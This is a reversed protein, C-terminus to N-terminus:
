IEGEEWEDEGSGTVSETDGTVGRSVATVSETVGCVREPVLHSPSQGNKSFLERYSKQEGRYEGSHTENNQNEIPIIYENFDTVNTVAVTQPTIDVTVGTDCDTVGEGRGFRMELPSLVDEVECSFKIRVGYFGGGKRDREHRVGPLRLQYTFLDKLAQVFTNVACQKRGTENAWQCFNPYLHIHTDLIERTDEDVRKRGIMAREASEPTCVLNDHAWEAFPNTNILTQMSVGNLSGVHRDTDRLYATVEDYPMTLAWTVVGPLYPEFESDLDRRKETSVVNEFRVTIRRRQLGSTYDSSCIDQNAAILVMGTFRFHEGAQRHKEEFALSDGGTMAKLVSVDGAYKEADTIIALRKGFLKATEFRNGELRKLETVHVNEKGMIAEALRIFTGKGSGGPGILELYRQLDARGTLIANLYARLLQVQGADKVSEMLWSQVPECTAAPNCDFPLKWTFFYEPRHPKLAGEDLFLVGNKFPIANAPPGTDEWRLEIALFELIGKVWTTSYDLGPDIREIADAVCALAMQPTGASWIGDRYFTWRNVRGDHRMNRLAPALIAAGKRHNRLKTKGEKDTYRLTTKDAAVVQGTSFDRLSDSGSIIRRADAWTRGKCSNHFCQYFLVGDATQGIASEGGTHSQDFLCTDLVYLTAGGHQKVRKVKVGYKDFYGALDVKGDAAGTNTANGTREAQPEGKPAEAILAQLMEVSVNKNM